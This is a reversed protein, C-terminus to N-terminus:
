NPTTPTSAPPSVVPMLVVSCSPSSASCCHLSRRWSPGSMRGAVLIGVVAGAGVVILLSTATAQGISYHGRLFILAFTSLGAFFFYGLASAVILLVNTHVSLVYRVVRWLSMASPDTHLVLTENPRIDQRTVETRIASASDPPAIALSGTPDTGDTPYRDPHTRIEEASPIAEYGQRLRSQGGRVPETFLRWLAWPLLLSPIALVFFAARWGGIAAVYGAVLLGFGAGLLEGTLIYGYIRGREGPDFLDGVLSAVCPGAAGTVAGLALRAVLLMPYDVALGSAAMAASWILITGILIRKRSARDALVGLPLTAAAGALSSVTVLLGLEINNIHLAHELQPAVAGVTGNDAGGLGIVCALLIIVRFRAPGGAVDTARDIV